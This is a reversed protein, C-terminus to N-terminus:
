MPEVLEASGFGRDDLGPVGPAAGGVRGLALGSIDLDDDGIRGAAVDGAMVLTVQDTVDDVGVTDIGM